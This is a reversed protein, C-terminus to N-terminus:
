PTMLLFVVAFIKHPYIHTFKPSNESYTIDQQLWGGVTMCLFLHRNFLAWLHESSAVAPSTQVTRPAVHRRECISLVQLQQLPQCLGLLSTDVDASRNTAVPIRRISHRCNFCNLYSSLAAFYSKWVFLVSSTFMLDEKNNELTIGIRIRIEMSICIRIQIPKFVIDIWMRIRGWTKCM